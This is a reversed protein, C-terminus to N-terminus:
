QKAQLSERGGVQITVVPVVADFSITHKIPLLILLGWLWRPRHLEWIKELAWTQQMHTSELAALVWKSLYLHLPLHLDYILTLVEELSESKEFM